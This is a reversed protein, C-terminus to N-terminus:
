LDSQESQAQVVLPLVSEVHPVRARADPFRRNVVMREVESGRDDRALHGVGAVLFIRETDLVAAHAVRGRTLIVASAVADSKRSHRRRERRPTLVVLQSM